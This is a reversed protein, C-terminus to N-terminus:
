EWDAAELAEMQDKFKDFKLRAMMIEAKAGDDLIDQNKELSILLQDLPIAMQSM